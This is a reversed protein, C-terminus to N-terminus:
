RALHDDVHEKKDSEDKAEKDDEIVGKEKGKDSRMLKELSAAVIKEIMKGIISVPIRRQAM